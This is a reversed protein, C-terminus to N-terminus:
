VRQLNSFKLNFKLIRREDTVSSLSLTHTNGKKKTKFGFASVPSPANTYNSTNTRSFCFLLNIILFTPGIRTKQRM